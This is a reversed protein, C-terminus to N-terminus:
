QARYVSYNTGYGTFAPTGDGNCLVQLTSRENLEANGNKSLLQTMAADFNTGAANLPVSALMASHVVRGAADRWVVIDGARANRPAIVGNVRGGYGRDLILNVQDGLL